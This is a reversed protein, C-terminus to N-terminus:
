AASKLLLEFDPWWGQQSSQGDWLLTLLVAESIKTKTHTALKGTVIDNLMKDEATVLQVLAHKRGLSICHCFFYPKHPLLPECKVHRTLNAAAAGATACASACSMRLSAEGKQEGYGADGAVWINNYSKARMFEDVEIQGNLRCSLGSNKWVPSAEFGINQLCFDFDFRRGESDLCHNKHLEHVQTHEILEINMARLVGRTYTKAAESYQNLVQTDTLIRLHIEPYTEAIETAYEIASLGAGLILIHKRTPLKAMATAVSQEDSFSYVNALGEDKTLSRSHSGLAYVLQDYSYTHRYSEVNVQICNQDPDIKEVYAQVFQINREACFGTYNISEIDGGTLQEHWRIRHSVQTHADILTIHAQPLDRRIQSAALLGAYGGGLIVIQSKSM